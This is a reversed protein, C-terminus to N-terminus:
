AKSKTEQYATIIALMVKRDQLDLVRDNLMVSFKEDLLIKALDIEKVHNGRINKMSHTETEVGLLFDVSVDFLKALRILTEPTPKMIGTEYRCYTAATVNLYDAVFKQKLNKSKRVVKLNNM